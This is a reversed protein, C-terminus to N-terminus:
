SPTAAGGPSEKAADVGPQRAPGEQAGPERAQEQESAMERLLLGTGMDDLQEDLADMQKRVMLHVLALLAATAAAGAMLEWAGHTWGVAFLVASLPWMFTYMVTQYAPHLRAELGKSRGPEASGDQLDM